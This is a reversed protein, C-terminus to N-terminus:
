WRVSANPGTGPAVRGEDPVKEGPVATQTTSTDSSEQSACGATFFLLLSIACFGFQRVAVM